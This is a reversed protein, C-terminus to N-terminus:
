EFLSNVDFVQIMYRYVIFFGALFYSGAIIHYIAILGSVGFLLTVHIPTFRTNKLKNALMARRELRERQNKELTSEHEKRLMADEKKYTRSMPTIPTM